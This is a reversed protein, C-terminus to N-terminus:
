SISALLSCDAQYAWACRGASGAPLLLCCGPTLACWILREGSMQAQSDPLALIDKNWGKGSQMMMDQIQPAAGLTDASSPLM